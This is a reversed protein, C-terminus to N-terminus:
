NGSIFLLQCTCYEWIFNETAQDSYLRFRNWYCSNTQKPKLKHLVFLSLDWITSQKSMCVCVCRYFIGEQLIFDLKIKTCINNHLRLLVACHLTCNADSWILIANNGFQYPIGPYLSIRVANQANELYHDVHWLSTILFIEKSRFTSVCSWVLTEM